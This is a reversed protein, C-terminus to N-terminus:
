ARGALKRELWDMDQKQLFSLYLTMMALFFFILNYSMVSIGGHLLIGAAFGYWRWRPVVLLVPIALEMLLVLYTVGKLLTGYDLVWLGPWRSNHSLLYFSMFDGSMWFHDGLRALVAQVYITSLQVQLLTIGYRLPAPAAASARRERGLRLCWCAPMPSVLLLFSTCRLVEDWGVMIFPARMSFAVHWLYVMAAALRPWVGLLLLVMFAGSILMYISVSTLDTCFRLVSWYPGVTYKRVVEHDVMGADTFFIERDPWIQALNLLCVFAFAIRVAAYVRADAPGLFLGTFRSLFSQPGPTM